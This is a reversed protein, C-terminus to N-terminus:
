VNKLIIKNVGAQAQPKKKADAFAEMLFSDRMRGNRVADDKLFGIKVFGCKEYCGIGRANEVDVTLTVKNLKLNKFCYRLATKMADTGYGKNWYDKEGIMIGIGAKKNYHSIQHIGLNGIPKKTAADFIVFLREDKKRKMQQLWRVEEEFTKPFQAGTMYATVKKDRIWKWYYPAYKLSSPKLIIKKSSNM